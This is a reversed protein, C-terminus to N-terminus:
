FRSARLTVDARSWAAEFGQEAWRADAARGQARLAEALGFLSWGNKPHQALDKRYAAEADAPRGASLLVAGLAQRVPFYFPPPETYALSDQVAVAAELEAVAAGSRGQAAALEGALHHRAIELRRSVPGEVFVLQGLAPDRAAAALADIEREADATRGARVLALGRAYAHFATAYRLEPAPAPEGLVADFRGFRVLTLVPITVFDELLPLKAIEHRPVVAALQRAVALAEDGRGQAAAAAWQFHLNHTLYLAGYFPVARCWALYSVDSAAAAANVRWADQYRGVRWYIHSPMHVLHGADPAISVLRDAAAEAREPEFREVLHILFHLAGPHDPDRALVGEVARLADLTGPRPSGDDEWYSWPSLDMVAEAFLVQADLDDPHRAALARMAEAYARDLASRDAPQPDPAYRAALAEVYERELPSAGELRARAETVATFARSAAEPGMPANINPGLAYAMGWFCMACRPDLRAAEGFADVAGEHNFGYTLVFGQDFYRQALPSATSVARQHDGLGGLLRPRHDELGAPARDPSRGEPTLIGCSVVPALAAALGLLALRM